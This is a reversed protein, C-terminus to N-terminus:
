APILELISVEPRCNFRVGWLSGVGRSVHVWRGRWRHLGEVMSKDRVGVIRSGLVPMVVQGGHTHGALLLHFEADMLYDKSDPNHCLVIRPIGYPCGAFAAGVMIGNSWLDGLGIVSLRQGRVSLTESANDLLRAGGSILIEGIPDVDHNGLVAFTPAFAALRRLVEVLVIPHDAWNNTIYDGTLCVLDPREALGLTVADHILALPVRFGYHLDSLHLLRLPRALGAIPVSRRTVEFWRPELWLPYAGLAAAGTAAALWRRRSSTM